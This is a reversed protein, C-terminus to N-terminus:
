PFLHYTRAPRFGGIFLTPNGPLNCWRLASRVGPLNSLGDLSPYYLFSGGRLVRSDNSAPGTPDIAIGNQFDGYWDQCWEWVNGHMDYLGWQNPRKQGVSRTMKTSNDEYWAYDRLLGDGDGFSYETTTGARCAYEWEAERPLRYTYGESKDAPLESLRQCFEVAEDWSVQEVPNQSGKFRSPNTGMVAEYQEQTVEYVGLEFPQTLTVQHPTEDDDGMMFTGGPLPKFAMGLSNSKVPMKVIV